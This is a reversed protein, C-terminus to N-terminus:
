GRRGHRHSSRASIQRLHHVRARQQLRVASNRRAGMQAAAGPRRDRRPVRAGHVEEPVRMPLCWVLRRPTGADAPESRENQRWGRKWLWALNIAATKGLGTPVNLVEPWPPEALRCQYAYPDKGNTACRFFYSYDM